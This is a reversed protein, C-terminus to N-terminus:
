WSVMVKKLRGSRDRYKLHKHRRGHEFLDRTVIVDQQCYDLVEEVRGERFWQVALTGDASKSAGLTAQALADLPLRFGLARHIHELLDLTPLDALRVGTYPQLVTYDFRKINFGVVLGASQLEAM